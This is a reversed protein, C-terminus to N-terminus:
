HYFLPLASMRSVYRKAEVSESSSVCGLLANEQKVGFIAVGGLPLQMGHALGVPANM